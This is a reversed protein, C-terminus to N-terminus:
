ENIKLKKFCYPCEAGSEKMIESLKHSIELDWFFGCFLCSINKLNLLFGTNNKNFVVQKEDCIKETISSKKDNLVKLISGRMKYIEKSIGECSLLISTLNNIM